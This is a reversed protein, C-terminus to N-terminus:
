REGDGGGGGGGDDDGGGNIDFSPPNPGATKSKSAQVHNKAKLSNLTVTKRERFCSSLFRFVGCDPSPFGTGVLRQSSTELSGQDPLPERGGSQIFRV